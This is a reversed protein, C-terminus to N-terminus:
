FQRTLSERATGPPTRVIWYTKAGPEPRLRLPDKGLLRLVLGTPTVALFFVIAMAAPGAINGLLQGLRVWGRRPRVALWPAFLGVAAASISAIVAWARHLSGNVVPWLALILLGAALALAFSRASARETRPDPRTEDHPM